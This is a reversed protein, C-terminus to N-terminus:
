KLLSKFATEFQIVSALTPPLPTGSPGNPTTVTINKMIDATQKFLDILSVSANAVSIKSDNTDILVNFAGSKLEFSDWQDCKVVFLDDLAGTLSIAIVNTGVTPKYMVFNSAENISSKLRVDPLELGSPCKITCSESEVSVVKGLVPLISEGVLEKVLRKIQEYKEM